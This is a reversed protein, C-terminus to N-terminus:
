SKLLYISSNHGFMDKAYSDTYLKASTVVSDSYKEYKANKNDDKLGMLQPIALMMIIGLISIAVLLEVLTFGDNNSKLYDNNSKM